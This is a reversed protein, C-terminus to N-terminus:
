NWSGAGVLEIRGDKELVEFTRAFRRVTDPFWEREFRAVYNLQWLLRGAMLDEMRGEPWPLADEYGQRFAEFLASYREAGVTELLDLMAMAIDHLRFGLTTDEFDFPYLRGRHLKVNDHWLDCHIIRIDERDLHGYARSARTATREVLARQEHTYAELLDPDFLMKPEDRCIYGDFVRLGDMEAPRWVGGHIHLKAFLRGLKALNAPTLFHGLLRGPQTSMLTANWPTPVEPAVATVVYDGSTSPFVRPVPVDTERRLALLWEAELRLDALRRWGPTALRLMLRRGDGVEVRYFLNTEFGHYRLSGDIGFKELANRAVNRLLRLQMRRSLRGFEVM